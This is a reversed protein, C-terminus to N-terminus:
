TIGFDGTLVTAVDGDGGFGAPLGVTEATVADEVGVIGDGTTEAEFLVVHHVRELGVELIREGEATVLRYFATTGAVARIDENIKARMDKNHLNVLETV